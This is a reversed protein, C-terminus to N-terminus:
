QCLLEKSSVELDSTGFIRIDDAKLEHSQGKAPSAAWIGSIRLCTGTNVRDTM